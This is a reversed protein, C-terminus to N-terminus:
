QIPVDFTGETITLSGPGSGDNDKIQGSFTGTTRTASLTLIRIQFGPNQSQNLPDTGGLYDVGAANTYDCGLLVGSALQNATYTTNATITGATVKMVSLNIFPEAAATSTRGEVSFIPFGTSVDYIGYADVNFTSAVGNIKCTIIGPPGSAVTVSFTCTSTGATVDFDFTGAAIPTGSGVLTITQPGTGAFAANTVSFTMGNVTNTTASYLGATTVTANIAVTNAAGLATGIAYTGASTAGSCDGLTFVAPPPPAIFTISFSCTTGGAGTVPYNFSGQNEPLGTATLIATQAGTGAFTGSGTFTVGNVAPTTITYTGATTVNVNLTVKNATTMAVDDQYTGALVAGTCDSGAGGLTYVAATGGGGGSGTTTVSFTCTSSGVTITSSNTGAATPTGNAALVITHPGTTALVGAGSFSIGNSAPVTINYTGTTTANVSITVSNSANTAIGTAYTGAVSAGSCNTPAGDLTLSAAGTGAALVDVVINCETLGFTVTFTNAGAAAPTGSGKLRVTQVGTTTVIGAGSFSYGNVIDSTIIYSGASTFDVDVDIYNTAALATGAMYIGQVTSPLCEGTGDAKLSGAASGGGNEESYEKQCSVVFLATMLFLALTKILKM